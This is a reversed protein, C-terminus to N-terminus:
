VWEVTVGARAAIEVAVAELRIELIDSMSLVTLLPVAQLWSPLAPPVDGLAARETIFVASRFRSFASRRRFVVRGVDAWCVRVPSMFIGGSSTIGEEDITPLVRNPRTYIVPALAFLLSANSAASRYGREV